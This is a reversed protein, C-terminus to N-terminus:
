LCALLTESVWPTGMTAPEMMQNGLLHWNTSALEAFLKLVGHDVELRRDSVKAMFSFQIM